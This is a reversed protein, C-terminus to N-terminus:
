AIPHIYYGKGNYIVKRVIRPTTSFCTISPQYRLWKIRRCQYIEIIFNTFIQVNKKVSKTKYKYTRSLNKYSGINREFDKWQTQKHFKSLTWSDGNSTWQNKWITTKYKPIWSLHVMTPQMNSLLDQTLGKTYIDYKSTSSLDIRSTSVLIRM